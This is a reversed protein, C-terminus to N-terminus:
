YSVDKGIKEKMQRFLGFFLGNDRFQGQESFISKGTSEPNTNKGNLLISDFQLVRLTESDSASCPQASFLVILFPTVFPLEIPCFLRQVCKGAAFKLNNWDTYHWICAFRL